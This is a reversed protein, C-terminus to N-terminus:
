EEKPSAKAAKEREKKKQTFYEILDDLNKDTLYTHDPMRTNRYQSPHRIFEKVMKTTRYEVVSKPENLDPGVKGGERNVAHCQICQDRFIEFGRLVGSGEKVGQPVVHPYQEEFKMLRISKVHKLWPFGHEVTQDGGSWILEPFSGEAIPLDSREKLAIWAGEEEAKRTSFAVQEGESSELVVESYIKFKWIEGYGSSLISKLPIAELSRTRRLVADKYTVPSVTLTSLTGSLPLTGYKKYSTYLTLTQDQAESLLPFSLSCLVLLVRFSM